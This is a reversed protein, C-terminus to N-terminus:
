PKKLTTVLTLEQGAPIDIEYGCIWTNSEPKELHKVPSDYDQPNGSWTKYTVQAGTTKLFMSSTNRTLMIGSGDLQIEPTATSVMTWRVHAPRDAPAKLVDKVELYEEDCIAATREAKELDGDFLPTLDFTAGMRTSTNETSVMNVFASVKHDKDNVTLTNHQRNNQRFLRWRLSNQSMDNRSGGLAEIGSEVDSYTMRTMDKAWRVADAYFVFTGGDMHGHSYNARGGKIGLYLDKKAWGTRCMMLPVDGQASYFKKSPASLNSIDMQMAYKIALVLLGRHETSIYEEAENLLQMETYLLSPENRKFAFYYLPYNSSSSTTNDAYNFHMGITGRAFIKFEGTDMFGQAKSIGYDTGFVGEFVTLMLVQYVTGYYWYTPGEPYAGDPAYMRAVTPANTSVADDIITQALEPHHEYTAVAACVLGGNCVQNWNDGRGYWWTYSSNRSTQLAYDKLARVADAKVSESLEAYLWDYAIAVATAMEAVDLYHSPNWSDFACVDQLDQVARQLYKDTGTIRYAYACSVLRSLAERSVALLRTNSADLEFELRETASVAQDAMTMVCSHLRGLPDTGNVKRKLTTFDDSDFILRPHCDPALMDKWLAEGYVDGETFDENTAGSQLDVKADTDIDELDVYVNRDVTLASEAELVLKEGNLRTMTIKFRYTGPLVCAYYNQGAPLEAEESNGLSSTQSDASVTVSSEGEKVSIVYPESDKDFGIEVVGALAGSDLDQITVTKIDDYKSFHFKLLGCVNKLHVGYSNDAQLEMLGASLNATQAFSEKHSLKQINELRTTIVGNDAAPELKVESQGCYIAYKPTASQPWGTITFDCKSEIANCESSKVSIGDDSLVRIVDGIAWTHHGDSLLTKTQTCEATVRLSYSEALEPANECSSIAVLVLAAMISFYRIQMKM